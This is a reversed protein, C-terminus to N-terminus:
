YDTFLASPRPAPHAPVPLHDGWRLTADSVANATVLHAGRSLEVRQGVRLPRGDVAVSAGELTYMGPVAVTLERTGAGKAIRKGAVWVQGWHPIYNERL